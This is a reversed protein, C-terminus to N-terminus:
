RQGFLEESTAVSKLLPMWTALPSQKGV